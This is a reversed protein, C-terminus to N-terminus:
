EGGGTSSDQGKNNARLTLHDLATFTSNFKLQNNVRGIINNAGSSSNKASNSASLIGGNGVSFPDNSFIQAQTIHGITQSSLSGTLESKNKASLFASGSSAPAMFHFQFSLNHNKNIAHITTDTKKGTIGAGSFILPSQKFTFNFKKASHTFDFSDVVFTANSFLDFNINSKDSDFVAEDGGTPVGPPSWSNPNQMNGDSGKWTSTAASAGGAALLLGLTLIKRLM